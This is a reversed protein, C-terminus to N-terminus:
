YEGGMEAFAMSFANRIQLEDLNFLDAYYRVKGYKEDEIWEGHEFLVNLCHIAELETDFIFCDGDEEKGLYTNMDDPLSYYKRVITWKM